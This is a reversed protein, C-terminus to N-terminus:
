QLVGDYHDRISFAFERGVSEADRVIEYIERPVGAYHYTKGGKFQVALTQSDDDYGLSNINSSEVFELKIDM